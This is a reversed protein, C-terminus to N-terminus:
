QLKKCTLAVIERCVHLYLFCCCCQCEPYINPCLDKQLHHVSPFFVDRPIWISGPFTRSAGSSLGWTTSWFTHSSGGWNMDLARFFTPCGQFEQVNWPHGDHGRFIMPNFVLLPNWCCFRDVQVESRTKGFTGNGYSSTLLGNKQLFRCFTANERENRHSSLCRSPYHRGNQITGTTSSWFFPFGHGYTQLSSKSCLRVWDRLM